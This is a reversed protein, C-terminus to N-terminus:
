DIKASEDPKRECGIPADGPFLQVKKGCRICGWCNRGLIIQYNTNADKKWEDHPCFMRIFLRKVFNNIM